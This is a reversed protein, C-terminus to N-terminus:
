ESGFSQKIEVLIHHSQSKQLHELIKPVGRRTCSRRSTLNLMRLRGVWAAWSWALRALPPASWVTRSRMPNSLPEVPDLGRHVERTHPIM